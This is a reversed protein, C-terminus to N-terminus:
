TWLIHQTPSNHLSMRRFSQSFALLPLLPTLSCWPIAPPFIFFLLGAEISSFTHFFIPTQHFLNFYFHHSALSVTPSRLIVVPSSSTLPFSPFDGRGRKCLRNSAAVEGTSIFAVCVPHYHHKLLLLVHAVVLTPYSPLNLKVCKVKSKRLHAYKNGASQLWDTDCM